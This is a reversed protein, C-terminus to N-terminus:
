RASVTMIMYICTNNLCQDIPDCAGFETLNYPPNELDEGPCHCTRGSKNVPGGYIDRCEAGTGCMFERMICVNVNDCEVHDNMM